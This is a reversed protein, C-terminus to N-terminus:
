LGWLYAQTVLCLVVSHSCCPIAHASRHGRGHGAITHVKATDVDKLVQNYLSYPRSLTNPNIVIQMIDCETAIFHM